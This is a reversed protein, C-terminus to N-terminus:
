YFVVYFYSISIYISFYWSIFFTSILCLFDYTESDLLFFFLTYFRWGCLLAFTTPLYIIWRFVKVVLAVPLWCSVVAFRVICSLYLLLCVFRVEGWCFIFSHIFLYICCFSTFKFMLSFGRLHMGITCLEMIIYHFICIM